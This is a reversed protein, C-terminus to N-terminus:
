KIFAYDIDSYKMIDEYGDNDVFFEKEDDLFRQSVGYIKGDKRNRFYLDKDYKDILDQAKKRGFRGKFTKGETVVLNAM